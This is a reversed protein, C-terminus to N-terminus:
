IATMIEEQRPARAITQREGHELTLCMVVQLFVFFCSVEKKETHDMKNASLLLPYHKPTHSGQKAQANATTSHTLLLTLSSYCVAQALYNAQIM